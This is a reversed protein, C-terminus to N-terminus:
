FFLYGAAFLASWSMLMVSLIGIVAWTVWEPQSRLIRGLVIYAPIVVAAFRAHSHMSNEYARTVYPIGLLGLSLVIEPGSLWSKAVGFLVLITATVFLIPNWFFLSFFPNVHSDFRKWTRIPNSTYVGWIPEWALLSELKSRRDHKVPPVTSWYEQTQAFAFPNDFKYCQYTMYALLGWSAVISTIMALLLRRIVPGRNSDSLIYWAVTATVALGVPRAGTAIGCMIAIILLPWHRVMGYLVLLTFVLFTSESYPMRFFFGAPWLGFITLALFRNGSCDEPYRSRLYAVFVVFSILLMFNSAVLLSLRTDWRTLRVIVRATIPYAPFFAVESARHPDYSYSREVIDKYHVADFRSCTALIDTGFTHSNGSMQVVFDMGFFIGLWVPASTLLYGILGSSLNSLWTNQFFKHTM